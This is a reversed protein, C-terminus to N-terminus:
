SGAEQIQIRSSVKSGDQDTSQIAARFQGSEAIARQVSDLTSVDPATIRLDIVGARFSIAQVQAQRNQVIANSLQEMSQLFLPPTDTTGLRRRLSDIVAVPDDTEPAGPLMQRYEANFQTRLESEQRSLLFYDIAKVGVGLVMFGAALM